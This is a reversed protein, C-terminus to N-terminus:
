GRAMTTTVTEHNWWCEGEPAGCDACRWTDDDGLTLSRQPICPPPMEIDDDAM